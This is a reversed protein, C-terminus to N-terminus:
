IKTFYNKDKNRSFKQTEMFYSKFFENEKKFYYNNMYKKNEFTVINYIDDPMKEFIFMYNVNEIEAQATFLAGEAKVDIVEVIFKDGSISYIFDDGVKVNLGDALASSFGLAGLILLVKLLLNKM